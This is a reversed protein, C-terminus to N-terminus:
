IFLADEDETRTNHPRSFRVSRLVAALAALLARGEEV